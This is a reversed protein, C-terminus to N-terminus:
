ASTSPTVWSNDLDAVWVACTGRHSAPWWGSRLDADPVILTGCLDAAKALLDPDALEVPLTTVRGTLLNARLTGLVGFGFSPAVLVIPRQVAQAANLAPLILREDDLDTNTVVVLPDLAAAIGRTRILFAPDAIGAPLTPEPGRATLLATLDADPITVPAPHAALDEETTFGASAAHQRRRDWWWGAVIIMAGVVLVIPIGWWPPNM